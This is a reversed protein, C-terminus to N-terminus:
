RDEKDEAGFLVNVILKIHNIQNVREGAKSKRSRAEVLFKIISIKISINQNDAFAM